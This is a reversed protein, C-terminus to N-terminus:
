QTTLVQTESTYADFSFIIVNPVKIMGGATQAEIETAYKVIYLKQGEERRTEVEPEAGVFAPDLSEIREAAVSVAERQSVPPGLIIVLAAISGILAVGAGSALWRRVRRQLRVKGVVITERDAWWRSLGASLTKLIRKIGAIKELSTGCEECFCIGPRNAFGCAPCVVEGETLIPHGSLLAEGCEECYRGGPRNEFGCAPCVSEGETLTAHNSLLAEGCEECYHVGSRNEFGCAPCTIHDLSSIAGEPTQEPLIEGVTAESNENSSYATKDKSPMPDLTGESIPVALIQMDDLIQEEGKEVLSSRPKAVQESEVAPLRKGCEECFRVDARNEFGCNSCKM